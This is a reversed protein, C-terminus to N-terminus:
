IHRTLRRKKSSDTYVDHQRLSNVRAQRFRIFRGDVAYATRKAARVIQKCSLAIVENLYLGDDRQDLGAVLNLRVQKQEVLQKTAGICHLPNGCPLGYQGRQNTLTPAM